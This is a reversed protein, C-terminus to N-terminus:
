PARDHRPGAPGADGTLRPLSIRFLAGGGPAAEITVAGGHAEAVTQVKALGLGSGKAKTTFFPNFIRAADAAAIGPGSDAVLIACRTADGEVTMTVRKARGSPNDAVADLANLVLNLCAQYLQDADGLVAAGACNDATDCAVGLRTFEHATFAGVRGVVDRLAVPARLPDKPHAFDLFDRILGEIRRVEDVVYGLLRHEAPGIQTKSRVLETSTQIIGLPNRVEHAIVMAAEGLVSLRDRRRLEAELAQMRNLQAAMSNFSGALEELERGGTEPVRQRYDGDTISRVAKTVSKLPKVLRGSMYLGSLVSLLTGTVFFAAFLKWREIDRLSIGLSVISALRGDADRLGIFAAHYDPDGLDADLVPDQTAAIRATLGPPLEGAASGGNAYAVSFGGDQRAYLTLDLSTSAKLSAFYDVDIWSGLLVFIDRGGVSAPEVVVSMVADRAGSQVPRLIRAAAVPLPAKMQAPASSFLIRRESDYILVLDSGLALMISSDSTLATLDLGGPNGAAARAGLLRAARAGENQGERMEQAFFKVTEGLWSRVNGEFATSILYTALWAAALMSPVTVLLFAIVLRLRLSDVRALM